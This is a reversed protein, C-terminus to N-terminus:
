RLVVLEPPADHLERQPVAELFEPFAGSTIAPAAEPRRGNKNENM